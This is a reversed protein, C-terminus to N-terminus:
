ATLSLAPQAREGASPGERQLEHGVGVTDRRRLGCREAQLHEVARRRAIGVGESLERHHAAAPKSFLSSCLKAGIIFLRIMEYM